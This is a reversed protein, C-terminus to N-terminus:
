IGEADDHDIQLNIPPQLAQRLAQALHCQCARLNAAPGELFTAATNSCTMQVLRRMRVLSHEPIDRRLFEEGKQGGMDPRYCVGLKRGAQRFDVLTDGLADLELDNERIIRRVAQIHEVADKLCVAWATAMVVIDIECWAPLPRIEEELLNTALRAMLCAPKDRFNNRRSPMFADKEMAAYRLTAFRLATMFAVDFSGYKRLFFARLDPHSRM